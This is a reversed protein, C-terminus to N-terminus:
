PLEERPEPPGHRIRFQALENQLESNRAELEHAQQNLFNLGDALRQRRAAPSGSSIRSLTKLLRETEAPQRGTVSVNFAKRGYSRRGAQDHDQLGPATSTSLQQAVPQLLLPSRLVQMLTPIDNSTNNRALQEFRAGEESTSRRKRQSPRFDFRSVGAFVPNAIRQYVANVAVAFVAPPPSCWGAAARLTRWIDDNSAM